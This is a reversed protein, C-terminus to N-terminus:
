LMDCGTERAGSTGNFIGEVVISMTMEHLAHHTETETETERTMLFQGVANESRMWTMLSSLIRNFRAACKQVACASRFLETMSQWVLKTRTLDSLGLSPRFFCFM